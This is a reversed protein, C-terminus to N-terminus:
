RWLHRWLPVPPSYKEPHDQVDQQFEDRDVWHLREVEHRNPHFGRVDRDLMTFFWQIYISEAPLVILLKPGHNFSIGSLGIEETAEKYINSEYTEGEQVTGSAAATWLGPNHSM